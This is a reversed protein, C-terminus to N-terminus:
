FITYLTSPYIPASTKLDRRAKTFRMITRIYRCFNPYLAFNDFSWRWFESLIGFVNFFIPPYINLFGLCSSSFLKFIIQWPKFRLRFVKTVKTSTQLGMHKLRVMQLQTNNVFLHRSYDHNQIPKEVCKFNGSETFYNITTVM